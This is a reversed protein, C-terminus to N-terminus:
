PGIIRYRGEVERGAKGPSGGRRADLIALAASGFRLFLYLLALTVILDDLRGIITVIDPALDRPLLTYGIALLPLAKVWLPVRRNTM